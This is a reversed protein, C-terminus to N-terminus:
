AKRSSCHHPAVPSPASTLASPLETSSHALRLSTRMLQLKIGTGTHAVMLTRAAQTLLLISM